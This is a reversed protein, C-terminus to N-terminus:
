QGKNRNFLDTLNVGIGIRYYDRNPQFMKQRDSSPIYVRPDSIKVESGPFDLFLPNQVRVGGAGIKMMAGGYFYLFSAEKIPFPYFADLRIVYANKQITKNPDTPDTKLYKLSGGTVAENQGFMFDVIAPFHNKFRNCELNDCYMTKLRLGVYWQRLFRDRDLPVLGIFEKAPTTVPPEGYRDIFDKRQPSNEGPITFVQALERKAELPNIAGGGGALYIHTRQRLGPILSLFQGNASALRFELGALFDFSQVLEVSNSPKGLQNVFNAPFVSAAAIQDPSSALRVQGWVALRPRREAKCKEVEAKKKEYDDDGPDPLKGCRSFILPSSFFFDVFPKTKSEASSAGVQELGVVARTNQSNSPFKAIDFDTACSEGECVVVTSAQITLDEPKAADFFRVTNTGVLVKVPVPLETPNDGDPAPVDFDKSTFVTKGDNMVDYKVKAIGSDKSVTLYSYFSSANVTSPNKQPREITIGKKPKPAEDDNGAEPDQEETEGEAQRPTGGEREQTRRTGEQTRRAGEQTRGTGEQTRGTGEQTRRATTEKTGSPREGDEEDPSSGTASEKLESAVKDPKITFPEKCWKGLCDVGLSGFAESSREDWISLQVPDDNVYGILSVRNGGKFLNVVIEHEGDSAFRIQDSTVTSVGGGDVIVHLLKKRANIIKFAIKVSGQVERPVYQTILVGPRDYSIREDQRGENEYRREPERGRENENEQRREGQRPEAQQSRQNQQRSQDQRGQDQPPSQYPQSRQDRPQRSRQQSFGVLSCLLLSLCLVLLRGIPFHLQPALSM